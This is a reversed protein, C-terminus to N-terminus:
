AQLKIPNVEGKKLHNRHKTPERAKNCGAEKSSKAQKSKSGQGNNRKRESEQISKKIFNPLTEHNLFFHLSLSLSLSLFPDTFAFIPL